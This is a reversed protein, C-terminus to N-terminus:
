NRLKLLIHKDVAFVLCFPKFQFIHVFDMCVKQEEPKKLFWMEGLKRVTEISFFESIHNEGTFTRSYSM